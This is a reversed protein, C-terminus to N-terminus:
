LPNPVTVLHKAFVEDDNFDLRNWGLTLGARGFTLREGPRVCDVTATFMM